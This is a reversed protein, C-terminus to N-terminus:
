NKPKEWEHFKRGVEVSFADYTAQRIQEPRISTYGVNSEPPVAVNVDKLPVREAPEGSKSLDWVVISAGIRGRYFHAMGPDRMSFQYVSVHVVMDAEFHKGLDVPDIQMANGQELYSEVRVAPVVDIKKKNKDPTKVNKELYASIYAALDLRIKPFDWLVEPPAWVYVLTRKGELRNFEPDIKESTPATLVAAAEILNCANLWPSVACLGLLCTLKIFRLSSHLSAASRLRSMWTM